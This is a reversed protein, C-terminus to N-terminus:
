VGGTLAQYTGNGGFNEPAFAVVAKRMRGDVTVNEFEMALMMGVSQGVTRFPILRLGPLIHAALTGLPDKLQQETLGTLRGAASASIVLVQQGTIPDRLTNGTDHLALLSVSRDGNRIRLPVYERGGSFAPGDFAFRSLIWLGAAALLLTQFDARGFSVALGGLALSLLLFVACQRLACLHWGFAIGGMLALSVVRWILNGLFRFDPLLCIGSYLSGLLAALALRKKCSPCGSMRNTGLLLLFDVMFNILMVGDVYVRLCNGRTRQHSWYLGTWGFLGDCSTSVTVALEPLPATRELTFGRSVFIGGGFPPPIQQKFRVYTPILLNQM